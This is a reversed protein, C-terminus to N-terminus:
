LAEMPPPTIKAKVEVPCGLCDGFVTGLSDMIEIMEEISPDNSKIFKQVREALIRKNAIASM